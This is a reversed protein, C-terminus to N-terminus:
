VSLNFHKILDQKLDITDATVIRVFPGIEYVEKIFDIEDECPYPCIWVSKQLQYFGLERLKMRLYDRRPRYKEPVDFIVLRWKKDWKAPKKIRMEDLKYKLLKHQGNKTLRVVTKNGEQSIEVLKQNKLNRLSYYVSKKAFRGLKLEEAIALLALPGAVPIMILGTFGLTMLLARAIENRKTRKITQQM